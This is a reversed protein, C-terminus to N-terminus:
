HILHIFLIGFFKLGFGLYIKEKKISFSVFFLIKLLLHLSWLLKSEIYYGNIIFM